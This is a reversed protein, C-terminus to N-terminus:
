RSAITTTMRDNMFFPPPPADETRRPAPLSKYEEIVHGKSGRKLGKKVRDNTSKATALRPSIILPSNVLNM